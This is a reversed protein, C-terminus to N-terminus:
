MGLPNRPTIRDTSPLPRPPDAPQSYVGAQAHLQVDGCAQCREGNAVVQFPGESQCVACIKTQESM